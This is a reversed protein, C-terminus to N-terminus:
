YYALRDDRQLVYVGLRIRFQDQVDGSTSCQWSTSVLQILHQALCGNGKPKLSVHVLQNPLGLREIAEQIGKVRSMNFEEYLM